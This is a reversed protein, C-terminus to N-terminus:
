CTIAPTDTTGLWKRNRGLLELVCKGRLSRIFFLDDFVRFLQRMLAIGSTRGNTALREYREVASVQSHSLDKGRRQSNQVLLDVLDKPAHRNLLLGDRPNRAPTKM